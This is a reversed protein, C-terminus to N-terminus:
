PNAYSRIERGGGSTGRLYDESRMEILRSATRDFEFAEHGHDAGYLDQPDAAASVILRIRNDYFTDVLSIFRKAENRKEAKMVPVGDIFVTHYTEAIKLYDAPGLPVECLDAFGFRAFGDVAQPVKIERGKMALAANSGTVKGTLNWWLADLAADAEHGLPSVYRRAGQMKELRYDTESTLEFVECRTKLLEIFPLFHGRNIGDHYLRDPVVNSTAVMVTGVDFLRTFLRGLIMADAIDTVSFEDFCLLRTQRAIADAIPPIPDDGRATGNKLAQRHDHVRQHVDAMFEHFHARRKRKIPSLDFFIDMLRTKGRGVGGWIYLGRVPPAREERKGFLWGLASRKQALRNDDLRKRLADLKSVLAMQAADESFEGSRILSGYRAAVSPALDLEDRIHM